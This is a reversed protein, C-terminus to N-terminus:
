AAFASRRRIPRPRHRPAVPPPALVRFARYRRRPASDFAARGAPHGGHGTRRSCPTGPLRLRATTSRRTRTRQEDTAMTRAGRKRGRAAAAGSREASQSKKSEFLAERGRGPGRRPRPRTLARPGQPDLATTHRLSHVRACADPSGDVLKRGARPSGRLPPGPRGGSLWSRRCPTRRRSEPETLRRASGRWYSM